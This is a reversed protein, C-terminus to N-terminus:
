CIENKFFCARKLLSFYPNKCRKTQKLPFCTFHKLLFSIIPRGFFLRFIHTEYSFDTLDLVEANIKKGHRMLFTTSLFKRVCSRSIFDFLESSDLFFMSWIFSAKKGSISFSWFCSSMNVSDFSSALIKGIYNNPKLLICKATFREYFLFRQFSGFAIFMQVWPPNINTM